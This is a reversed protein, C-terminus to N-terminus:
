EDGQPALWFKRTVAKKKVDYVYAVGGESGLNLPKPHHFLIYYVEAKKDFVVVAALTLKKPDITAYGPKAKRADEECVKLVGEPLVSPKAHSDAGRPIEDSGGKVGSSVTDAISQAGKTLSEGAERAGQTLTQQLSAAEDRLSKKLEEADRELSKQIDKLDNSMSSGADSEEDLNMAKSIESTVGSTIKRFQRILRGAKRGYEPLREPGVVILAVIIIIGIEMWGMGLFDM